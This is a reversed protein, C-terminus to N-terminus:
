CLVSLYCSACSPPASCSPVFRKSAQSLDRFACSTDEDFEEPQDNPMVAGKFWLCGGDHLEGRNRAIDQAWQRRRLNYEDLHCRLIRFFIHDDVWKSIPGIGRSRLIQAGADGLRGYIGCGSALGFCDRTDIAFSDDEDLRVVLGPWQEPKIPLGRYAEKVDRVAAQSGLPLRWILLCIVSFTGWTCPYQSSDISSNISTISNLPSHPSSLNQIIRFKGPRGPKPIISLPSTQFPGILLEVEERTVPGVYREKQFETEIISNFETIHEAISPHNLPAFTQSIPRIGADFGLRLGDPIGPYKDLLGAVLLYERWADPKYPPSPDLRKRELVARLGTLRSEADPASTVPTTLPRPVVM